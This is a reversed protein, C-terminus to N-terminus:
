NLLVEAVFWDRAITESWSNKFILYKIALNIHTGKAAAERVIDRSSKEEWCNWINKENQSLGEM